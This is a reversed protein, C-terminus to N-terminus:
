RKPHNIVISNPPYEDCFKESVKTIEASVTVIKAYPVMKTKKVLRFSTFKTDFNCDPMKYSYNIAVNVKKKESFINKIKDLHIICIEKSEKDITVLKREIKLPLEYQCVTIDTGSITSALAPFM